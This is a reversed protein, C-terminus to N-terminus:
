EIVVRPPHPCETPAHWRGPQDGSGHHARLRTEPNFFSAGDELGDTHVLLSVKATAADVVRILTAPRCEGSHNGDALVYHVREGIEVCCM